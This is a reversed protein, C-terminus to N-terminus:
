NKWLPEGEGSSQTEIDDALKRLYAATASEGDIAIMRQLAASLMGALVADVDVGRSQIEEAFASVKAMVAKSQDRPELDLVKTM